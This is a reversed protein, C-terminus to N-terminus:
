RVFIFMSTCWYLNGDSTIVEQPDVSDGSTPAWWGRGNLHTRSVVSLSYGNLRLQTNVYGANPKITTKHVILDRVRANATLYLSAGRTVILTVARFASAGDEGPFYTATRQKSPYQSRYESNSGNKGDLLLLGGNEPDNANHIFITGCSAKPVSAATGYGADYMTGYATISGTFANTTTAATQWLAFRGGGGGFDGLARGGNVNFEGDGTLTGCTVWCSGGAGVYQELYTGSIWSPTGEANLTGDMRFTGGVTFKAAGGGPSDGGSGLTVPRRISGYCVANANVINADCGVGGHSGGGGGNGAGPGKKAAFGKGTLDVLAGKEITIDGGVTLDIRYLAMNDNKTHTLLAGSHLVFTNEVTTGADLILTSGECIEASNAIFVTNSFRLSGGEVFLDRIAVENTAVITAGAPVVVTDDVGPVAGGWNQADAFDSTGAAGTWACQSGTFLWRENATSFPESSTAYVPRATAISGSVMVGDVRVIKTVDLYWTAGGVGSLCLQRAAGHIRINDAKVTKGAGIVLSGSGSVTFHKAHVGAPLTVTGGTRMLQLTGFADGEFDLNIDAGGTISLTGSLAIAGGSFDATAGDLFLTGSGELRGFIQM